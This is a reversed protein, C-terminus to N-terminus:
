KEILKKYVEVTQEMLNELKFREIYLKRANIGLQARLNHDEILMIIKEAMEDTDVSLGFVKSFRTNVKLANVGDAFMEDLGDVATTVIPLYFMAMEIGAYSCQEQLSAIIGADSEKYYQQLDELQIRGLVNIQLDKYEETIQKKINPPCMGAMNLCVNYGKAQVKRLAKLIYFIGKSESLLGVFFCKFAGSRAEFGKLKDYTLLDNIGNNVVAIKDDPIKILKTLFDKACQTGSIIKDAALYSELECNNTFFQQKDLSQSKDLYYHSYLLNFKKQNKNYFNKWPICHLHTIIKCPIQAKIYSALAILNLTHIHIIRNPKDEFLHRVLRFVQENYKGLWYREGIIENSQQPIPITVQTYNRKKEEKYFLINGVTFKIRYVRISPYNEFGKLLSNIHRDVGSTNAENTMDLLYLNIENM